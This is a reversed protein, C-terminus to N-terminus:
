ARGGLPTVERAVADWRRLGTAHGEAESVVPTASAALLELARPVDAGRIRRAVTVHPTWFAPHATPLTEAGSAAIADHVARHLALLAEDVVTHWALVHGRGGPFVVLGGLRLRLPLRAAVSRLADLAPAVTGETVSVTVHPRNSESPNRGANAIDARELAAWDAFVARESQADLLLEVSEV